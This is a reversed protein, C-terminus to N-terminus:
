VTGSLAVQWDSNVPEHKETLLMDYIGCGDYKWRLTITVFVEDTQIGVRTFVVHLRNWIKSASQISCKEAADFEEAVMLEKQCDDIKKRVSISVPKGPQLSRQNDPTTLADVIKVGADIIKEANGIIGDEPM